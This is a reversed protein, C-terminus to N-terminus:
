QFQPFPQSVPSNENPIDEGNDFDEINAVESDM